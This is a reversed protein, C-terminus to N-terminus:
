RRCRRLPHVHLLVDPVLQDHLVLGRGHVGAGEQDARRRRRQQRAHRDQRVGERRGRGHRKVDAEKAADGTVAVAKGGDKTILAATEEVLAGSRAACVVAAGEHAFLRSMVRGIGKSAGTIIAVKGDLLSM